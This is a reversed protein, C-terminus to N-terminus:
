SKRCRWCVQRGDKYNFYMGCNVCVEPNPEADAMEQQRSLFFHCGNCYGDNMIVEVVHKGCGCRKCAGPASSFNFSQNM